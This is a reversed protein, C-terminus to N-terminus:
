EACRLPLFYFINKWNFNAFKLSFYFIQFLQRVFLWDSFCRDSWNWWGLRLTVFNFEIVVTLIHYVAASFKWVAQEKALPACIKWFDLLWRLITPELLTVHFLNWVPSRCINSPVMLFNLKGHHGPEWSKHVGPRSELICCLHLNMDEPISCITPQYITVSTKFFSSVGHHLTRRSFSVPKCSTLFHGANWPVRLNM